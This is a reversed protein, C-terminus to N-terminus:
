WQVEPPFAAAGATSGRANLIVPISGRSWVVMDRGGLMATDAVAVEVTLVMGMQGFRPQWISEIISVGVVIGM